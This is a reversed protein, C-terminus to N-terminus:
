SANFDLGPAICWSPDLLYLTRSHLHILGFAVRGLRSWSIMGGVMFPKSDFEQKKRGGMEDCAISIYLFTRWENKVTRKFGILDWRIRNRADLQLYGKQLLLQELSIRNLKYEGHSMSKVFFCLFIIPTSSPKDPCSSNSLSPHCLSFISRYTQMSITPSKTQYLAYIEFFQSSVLYAEWERALAFNCSLSWPLRAVNLKAVVM